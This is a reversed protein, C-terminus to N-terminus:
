SLRAPRLQAVVWSLALCAGTALAWNAFTGGGAAALVTAFGSAWADGQRVVAYLAAPVFALPPALMWWRESADRHAEARVAVAHAFDLPPEGHPVDRLAQRLRADFLDNM